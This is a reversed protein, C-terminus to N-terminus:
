MDAAPGTEDDGRLAAEARARAKATVVHVWNDNGDLMVELGCSPGACRYRGSGDVAKSLYPVALHDDPDYGPAARTVPIARAEAAVDVQALTAYVLALTAMGQGQAVAHPDGSEDGYLFRTARQAWQEAARINTTASPAAAYATM